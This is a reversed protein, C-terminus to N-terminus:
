EGAQEKLEKKLKNYIHENAFHIKTVANPNGLLYAFWTETNTALDICSGKNKYNFEVHLGYSQLPSREYVIGDPGTVVIGKDMSHTLHYNGEMPVFGVGVGKLYEMRVDDEFFYKGEEVEQKVCEKEWYYWESPWKFKTEGTLCTITGEEDYNYTAGCANCKLTSGESTMEFEKGCHPCKYLVKHLGEARKPYTIKIHNELQWKEDDYQFEEEIVRQIDEVSCREINRKSVITRMEAVIPRVKRIKHDSWSPDRLYHGNCKMYVIPVDCLKAFKALGNDIREPKGIISYRAEPYIILIKKREKLVEMMLKASKPDNTYKRKPIIGLHRFIFDKDIYEEVTSVWYPKYPQNAKISVYFDMFSGHSSILLFPPKPIYGVKKIKVHERTRGLLSACRIFWSFTTLVRHNKEYTDIKKM